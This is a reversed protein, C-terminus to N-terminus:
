DIEYRYIVEKNNYQIKVFRWDKETPHNLATLCIGCKIGQNDLCLFKVIADSDEDEVMHSTLLNFNSETGNAYFTAKNKGAELTLVFNCTQWDDMHVFSGEVDKYITSVSTLRYKDVKQSYGELTIISLLLVYISKM